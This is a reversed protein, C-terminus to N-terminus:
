NEVKMADAAKAIAIFREAKRRARRLKWPGLFGSAPWVSWCAVEKWHDEHPPPYSRLVEIYITNNHMNTTTQYQYSVPPKDGKSMQPRTQVAGESALMHRAVCAWSMGQRYLALAQDSKGPRLQQPRPMLPTGERTGAGLLVGRHRSHDCTAQDVHKGGSYRPCSAIRGRGCVRRLSGKGSGFM